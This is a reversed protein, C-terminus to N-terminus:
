REGILRPVIFSGNHHRPANQLLQDRDLGSRDLDERLAERSITLLETTAEGYDSEMLLMLHDLMQALDRHMVVLEADSFGLRASRAAALVQERSVVM